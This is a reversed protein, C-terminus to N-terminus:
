CGTMRLVLHLTANNLINHDCLSWDDYLQKGAFIMRQECVPIGNTRYIENKVDLITGTGNVQLVHTKGTLTKVFIQIMGQTAVAPTKNDDQSTDEGADYTLGYTKKYEEQTGILRAMIKELPDQSAEPYHHIMNKGCFSKYGKTDLIHLHWVEDITKGFSFKEHTWDNMKRKLHMVRRYTEVRTKAIAPSVKMEREVRKELQVLNANREYIKVAKNYEELQEQTQAADNM